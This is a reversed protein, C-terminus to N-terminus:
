TENNSIPNFSYRKPLLLIKCLENAIVFIPIFTEKNIKISYEKKQYSFSLTENYRNWILHINEKSDEGYEIGSELKCPGSIGHKKMDVLAESLHTYFNRIERFSNSTKFLNEILPLLDLLGEKSELTSESINYIDGALSLINRLKSYESPQLFIGLTFVNSSEIRKSQTGGMSRLPLKQIEYYLSDLALFLFPVTKLIHDSAGNKKNLLYWRYTNQLVEAAVM